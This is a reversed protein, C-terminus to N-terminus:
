KKLPPLLAKMTEPTQGAVGITGKSFLLAAPAAVTANPGIAIRSYVGGNSSFLSTHLNFEMVVDPATGNTTVPATAFEARKYALTAQPTGGGTPSESVDLGVTTYSGVALQGPVGACGALTTFAAAAALVQLKNILKM